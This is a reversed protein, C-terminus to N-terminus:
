FPRVNFENGNSLDEAEEDQFSDEDEEDQFLTFAETADKLTATDIDKPSLVSTSKAAAIKRRKLPPTSDTPATNNRRKYEEMEKVYKKKEEAAELNYRDKVQPEANNWMVGLSKSTPKSEDESTSARIAACFRLFGTLPRKPASPDKKKYRKKKKSEVGPKLKKKRKMKARNQIDDTSDSMSNSMFDINEVFMSYADGGPFEFRNSPTSVSDDELITEDFAILESFAQLDGSLDGLDDASNQM